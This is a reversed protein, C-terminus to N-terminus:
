YNKIVRFNIKKAIYKRYSKKISTTEFPKILSNGSPDSLHKNFILVYRKETWPKDPVFYWENDYLGPIIKGEILKGSNYNKILIGIQTSFFEIPSDFVIKLKESTNKKPFVLKDEIIKPCTNIPSIIDFEKIFPKLKDNNNLPKIENTIELYYKKGVTFIEGLNEYYSIDKKVRGPHIMIMMIKDSIWRAKNYWVHPIIKKNEDLLNIYRYASEDEAMPVPFEIYFTLVSKPIKNDRPYIEKVHIEQVSSTDIPKTKYMKKITSNKYSFNASFSLGEGLEFQPDFFITDKIKSYSGLLPTQSEINDQVMFVKILDSPQEINEEIPFAKFIPKNPNKTNILIEQSYCITYLFIFLFISLGKQKLQNTKKM